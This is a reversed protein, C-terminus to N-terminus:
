GKKGKKPRGQRGKNRTPAVLMGQEDKKAFRKFFNFTNYAFWATKIYAYVLWLTMLPVCFWKLLIQMGDSKDTIFEPWFGIDGDGVSDGM